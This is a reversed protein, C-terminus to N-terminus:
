SATAGAEKDFSSKRVNQHTMSSEPDKQFIWSCNPVNLYAGSVELVTM